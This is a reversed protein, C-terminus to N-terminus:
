AEAGTTEGVADDVPAMRCKGILVDDNAIVFLDHSHRQRLLWRRGIALTTRDDDSRWRRGIAMTTRDGDDDSREAIALSMTM